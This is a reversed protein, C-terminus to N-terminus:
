QAAAAKEQDLLRFSNKYFDLVGEARLRSLERSLASRDANLYDALAARDYPVSFVEAGAREAEGRLYQLLKDRLTPRVLCDIRAQLSFYKEAISRLLNELLLSHGECGGSCRRLVREYPLFLAKCSTIATVTVPSKLHEGAALVDAFVSGPSLEAAVSRRGSWDLQSALARGELLLGIHSVEAQEQLLLEGPAFTRATPSICSLLQRAQGEALGSFLPAALIVNLDSEWLNENGM